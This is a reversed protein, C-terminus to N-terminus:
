TRPRWRKWSKCEPPAIVVRQGGQFQELLQYHLGCSWFYRQRTDPLSETRSSLHTCSFCEIGQGQSMHRVIRWPDLGASVCIQAASREQESPPMKQLEALTDALESVDTSLRQWWAFVLAVASASASFSARLNSPGVAGLARSEPLVTEGEANKSPARQPMPANADLRRDDCSNGQGLADGVSPAAKPCHGLDAGTRVTSPSIEGEVLENWNLM